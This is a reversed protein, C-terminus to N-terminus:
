DTRRERAGEGGPRPEPLQTPHPIGALTLTSMSTKLQHTIATVSVTTLSVGYILHCMEPLSANGGNHNHM